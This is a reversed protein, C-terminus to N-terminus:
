FDIRKIIITRWNQLFPGSIQMRHISGDLRVVKETYSGMVDPDSLKKLDISIEFAENAVM